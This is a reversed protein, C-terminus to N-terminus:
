EKIFSISNVLEGPIRFYYFGPSLTQIEIGNDKSNVVGKKIVGGMQNVIEYYKGHFENSTSFHLLDMAPNPYVTIKEVETIGIISAAQFNFLCTDEENLPGSGYIFVATLPDCWSSTDVLTVPYDQTTQGLQAFYFLGGIAVTDGNCDLIASIYPYNVIENSGANFNISIQYDNPNLTDPYSGTITFNSCPITQAYTSTTGFFVLSIVFALKKM